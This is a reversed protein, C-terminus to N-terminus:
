LDRDGNPAKPQPVLLEPVVRLAKALAELEDPLPVARGMEFLDVRAAAIGTERSLKRTTITSEVRWAYLPTEGCAIRHSIGQTPATRVRNKEAKLWPSKGRRQM